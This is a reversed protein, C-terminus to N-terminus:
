QDSFSNESGSCDFVLIEHYKDPYFQKLYDLCSDPSQEGRLSYQISCFELIDHPICLHYRDLFRAQRSLVSGPRMMRLYAIVHGAQLGFKRILFTAIMTGTRGLGARCHVAIAGKAKWIDDAIKFFEEIQDWAPIGGDPMFMEYHQIGSQLLVERDYHSKNLRVVATINHRLAYANFEEIEYIEETPGALALIKGPIVWNMDGNLPHERM